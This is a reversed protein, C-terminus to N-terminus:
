HAVRRTGMPLGQCETPFGMADRLTGQCVRPVGQSGTPLGIQYWWFFRLRNFELFETYCLTHEHIYVFM